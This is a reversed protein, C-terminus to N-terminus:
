LARPGPVVQQGREGAKAGERGGRVVRAQCWRRAARAVLGKRSLDTM